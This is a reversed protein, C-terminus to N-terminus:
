DCRDVFARCRNKEGCGWVRSFTMDMMTPYYAVQRPSTTKEVEGMASGKADKTQARALLPTSVLVLVVVVIEIRRM